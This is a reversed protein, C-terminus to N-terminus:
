PLGSLAILNSKGISTQDRTVSIITYNRMQEIKCIFFLYCMEPESRWIELERPPISAAKLIVWIRPHRHVYKLAKEASNIM